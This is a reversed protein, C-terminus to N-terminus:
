VKNNSICTEYKLSIALFAIIENDQSALTGRFAEVQLCMQNNAILLKLDRRGLM